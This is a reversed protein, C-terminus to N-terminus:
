KKIMYHCEGASGICMNKNQPVYTILEIKERRFYDEIAMRSSDVNGDDFIIMGGSVVKPYLYDLVDMTASYADVDIRLLAIKEIPCVDPKLVDKVYGEIFNIRKTDLENYKEFVSKVESVPIGIKYDITHPEKIKYKDWLETPYRSDKIDEFGTFSDVVWIKKDSFLKSLFVSMGGRWVGCEVIDGELDDIRSKEDYISTFGFKSVMSYRNSLIEDVLDTFFDNM